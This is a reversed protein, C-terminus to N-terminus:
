QSSFQQIFSTTNQNLDYYIFQKTLFHPQHEPNPIPPIPLSAFFYPSHSLTKHSDSDAFYKPSYLSNDTCKLTSDLNNFQNLQNLYPSFDFDLSNHNTLEPFLIQTEKMDIIFQNQQPLHNVVMKLPVSVRRGCPRAKAVSNGGPESPVLTGSPRLAKAVCDGCQELLKWNGSQQSPGECRFLSEFCTIIVFSYSYKYLFRHLQVSYNNHTHYIARIPDFVIQRSLFSDFASYTCSITLSQSPQSPQSPQSSYCVFQFPILPIMNAAQAPTEVLTFDLSILVNRDIEDVKVRVITWMKNSKKNFVIIRNPDDSLNKFFEVYDWPTTVCPNNPNSYVSFRYWNPLNCTPSLPFTHLQAAWFVPEGSLVLNQPWKTTGLKPFSHFLNNLIIQKPQPPPFSQEQENGTQSTQSQPYLTFLTFIDQPKILNIKSKHLKKLFNRFAKSNNSDNQFHLLNLKSDDTITIMPPSTQLTNLRSKLVRVTPSPLRDVWKQFEFEFESEESESQDLQNQTYVVNYSRFYPHSDARPHTQTKKSSSRTIKMKSTNFSMNKPTQTQLYKNFNHLNNLNNIAPNQHVM